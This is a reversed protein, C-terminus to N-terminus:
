ALAQWTRQDYTGSIIPSQPYNQSPLSKRIAMMWDRYSATKPLEPLVQLAVYTFAGNPRGGFTADYSYEYDQCGALLLATSRTPLTKLTRRPARRAAELENDKLFVEPSLFRVKGVNEENGFNAFRSVSGSHCSDSIFILKVGRERRTFIQYLDDDSLPGREFVDYSCLAEDRGDPEDGNNDPLWTGHGSYTIVVSDGYHAGDIVTEMRRRMGDLTAQEDLLMEVSFGRDGLAAAWDNADNVCGQLDNETGPYQNLGICLAHKM